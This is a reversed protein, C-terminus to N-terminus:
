SIQEVLLSIAALTAQKRISDRDGKFLYRAVEVAQKSKATAIYVTGVPKNVCGGEPGTIGTISVSMDAASNHLAGLAMQRATERSVAGHEDLVKAQVGLSRIKSADSYTVFGCEFWKSSGRIATFCQSLMGGTCSEATALTLQQDGMLQALMLVLPQINSSCTDSM